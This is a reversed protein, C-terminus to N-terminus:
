REKPRKRHGGSEKRECRYEKMWSWTDETQKEM